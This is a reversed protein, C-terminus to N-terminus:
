TQLSLKMENCRLGAPVNYKRGSRFRKSGNDVRMLSAPIAIRWECPLINWECPLISKWVAPDLFSVKGYQLTWFHTPLPHVGPPASVFLINYRLVVCKKTISFYTSSALWSSFSTGSRSSAIILGVQKMFSSNRCFKNLIVWNLGSIM